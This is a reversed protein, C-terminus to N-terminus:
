TDRRGAPPLMLEAYKSLTGTWDDHAVYAVYGDPRVLIQAPSTIGYIRRVGAADKDPIEVTKLAAGTDPWSTQTLASVAPEGVAILTLHAGRFADFLQSARDPLPCLAMFRCNGRPWIHWRNRPLGTLTVDAVIMRDSEDTDGIFHTM